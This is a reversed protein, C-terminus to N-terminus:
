QCGRKRCSENGIKNYLGTDCSQNDKQEESQSSNLQRCISLVVKQGIPIMDFLEKISFKRCPPSGSGLNSNTGDGNCVIDLTLDGYKDLSALDSSCVDSSWDSIRM